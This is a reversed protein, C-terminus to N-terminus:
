DNELFKKFENKNYFHYFGDNKLDELYCDKEWRVDNMIGLHSTQILEKNMLYALYTEDHTIWTDFEGLVHHIFDLFEDLYEYFDFQQWYDKDIIYIGGDPFCNVPLDLLEFKEKIYEFVKVTSAYQPKTLDDIDNIWSGSIEFLNAPNGVPIVDFDTFLVRDYGQKFADDITCFKSLTVKVHPALVDCYKRSKWFDNVIDNGYCIYDADVLNAYDQQYKKIKDTYISYVSRERNTYIVDGLDCYLTIYAKRM